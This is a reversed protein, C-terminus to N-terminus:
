RGALAVSAMAAIGAAAAAALLWPLGSSGPVGLGWALALPVALWSMLGLGLAYRGIWRHIRGLGLSRDLWRRSGREVQGLAIVAGGQAALALGAMTAVWGRVAADDGARVVAFVGIVAVPWVLRGAWRFRRALVAADRAWIAAARRPLLRAVGRDVVLGAAGTEPPPVFAMEGLMPMWRALSSGYPRVARAAAAFGIGSVVAVRGWAAGPASGVWAAALIAALVPVLPAFVLPAAAAMERDWAVMMGLAGRGREPAAISGAAGAHALLALGWAALAAAFAVALPRSVAGRGILPIAASLVILGALGLLRVAQRVFIASGRIGTSRLLPGDAPRLLVAYAFFSIPAAVLFGWLAAASSDDLTPVTAARLLGVAFVLGVLAGVWIGAGARTAAKWALQVDWALLTTPSM